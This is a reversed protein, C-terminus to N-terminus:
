VMALHLDREATFQESSELRPQPELIRCIADVVRPDFQTGSNRQLEDIAFQQGPAKRYPRDSTMAEFSDAVFIIRSELPIDEGSIKDPYGNGDWRSHHHRIWAAEVPLEAALVINYGLVAHTKMLDYEAQTLKAPKNLIADPIGIKGVDHLLGAIRMKEIHAPAFGLEAAILASLESVTQSHSRTYSDKADVALALASALTRTHHANESDVRALQPEMEPSYIAAAHGSRKAAMLALRAERILRDKDAGALLEAVGATVGVSNNSSDAALNADLRQTFELANWARTGDLIVGFEDGGIRYSCETGREAGRIASALLKLQEDGADHGLNDNVAKLKDMDLMILSMPADPRGPQLSRELKEHFARHNRLGTLPDTVAVGELRKLESLLMADRGRRFYAIVLGLGVLLLVGVGFATVIARTRAVDNRRLAATEALSRRSAIGARRYVTSQIVQFVRDAAAQDARVLVAPAHTDIAQFLAHAAQMYAVDLNLLHNVVARNAPSRDLQLLGRFRKTQSQSTKQLLDVIRPSPAVGYQAVLEQEVDVSFRADQYLTSAGNLADARRSSAADRTQALISFGALFCLVVLLGVVSGRVAWRGASQDLAV